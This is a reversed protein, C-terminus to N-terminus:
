KRPQANIEHRVIARSDSLVNVGITDLRFPCDVFGYHEVLSRMAREYDRRRVRINPYDDRAWDIKALVIKGEDHFVAFGCFDAELIERGSMELYRIAAGIIKSEMLQEKRDGIEESTPEAGIEYGNVLM